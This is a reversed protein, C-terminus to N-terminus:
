GGSSRPSVSVETNFSSIIQECAGRRELVFKKCVISAMKLIKDDSLLLRFVKMLEQSDSISFGAGQAILETAEPFKHHNPGFIVPVGFAVPELINHIGAGFGGGVYAIDAYQYLSSLMGIHDVVLINVQKLTEIATSVSKKSIESLRILKFHSLLRALSRLHSESIEHPAIIIKQIIYNQHAVTSNFLVNEDKPWTSGCVLLRNEGKFYEILPIKKTLTALQFVRDFRLDGSVIVDTIGHLALIKRSSENQVFIKSFLKLVRKLYYGYLGTFQEQRFNASVLHVPIKRKHIECLFNYWFDYKIFFIQSPSILNLFRKVNVKTDLPLYCVLDVGEYNKRIEYGSPSFFTVIIRFGSNQSKLKEILPRAQEFEGLSACHFWIRKTNHAEFQLNKESIHQFLNKRGM